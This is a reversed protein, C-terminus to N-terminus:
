MKKERKWKRGSKSKQSQGKKVAEKGCRKEEYDEKKKMQRNCKNKTRKKREEEEKKWYQSRWKWSKNRRSVKTSKEGEQIIDQAEKEQPEEREM